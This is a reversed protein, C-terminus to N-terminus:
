GQRSVYVNTTRNRTLERSEDKGPLSVIVIAGIVRRSAKVAPPATSAPAVSLDADAEDDAPTRPFRQQNDNAYMLMALGIQKLNNSCKSRYATERARNLSPLLIAIALLLLFGMIVVAVGAIILAIMGGSLGQKPQPTAYPLPNQPPIQQPYQPPIQSM